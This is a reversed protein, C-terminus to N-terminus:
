PLGKSLKFFKAVIGMARQWDDQEAQLKHQGRRTISYFKVRRGTGSQGWRAAIWGHHRLKLLAPYLSGQNISLQDHSIQEIRRAIAYGHLPGMAELTELIMLDLTGRLVDAKRHSM